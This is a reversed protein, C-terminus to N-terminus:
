ELTFGRNLLQLFCNIVSMKDSICCAPKFTIQDGQPKPFIINNRLVHSTCLLKYSTKVPGALACSGSCACANHVERCISSNVLLIEKYVVLLQNIYFKLFLPM